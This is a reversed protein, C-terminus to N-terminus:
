LEKLPSGQISSKNFCPFNGDAKIMWDLYCYRHPCNEKSPYTPNRQIDDVLNSDSQVADWVKMYGFM